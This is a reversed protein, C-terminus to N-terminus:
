NTRSAMTNEILIEKYTSIIDNYQKFNYKLEYM